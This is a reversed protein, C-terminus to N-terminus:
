SCYFSLTVERAYEASLRRAYHAGANKGMEWILASYAFLMLGQSSALSLALPMVACLNALSIRTVEAVM